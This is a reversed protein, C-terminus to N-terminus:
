VDNEKNENENENQDKKTEEEEKEEKQKPILKEIKQEIRYLKTEVEDTNFNIEMHLPTEEAEQLKIQFWEVYENIENMLKEKDEDSIEANEQLKQMDNEIRRKINEEIMPIRERFNKRKLAPEGISRLADLRSNYENLPQREFENESFWDRINSLLSRYEDIHEPSFFDTYDREIATELQFIYSELENKAEDIKIENIDIERMRKEQKIYEDIEEAPLGFYPKYTFKVSKEIQKDKANENDSGKADNNDNNKDPEAPKPVRVTAGIVDVIGDPTLRVKLRVTQLEESKTQIEVHGLEYEATYIVVDISSIVKIPVIKTSPIPQFAQFLEKDNTENTTPDEWKIMVSCHAMEQVNLSVRFQPSLIAAQFGAGLAFCEDPNLSQTPQKKFIENIKTKVLPVRSAGGHVEIISLDDMSLNANKIAQEIPMPIRSLLDKIQDEFETRKVHFHVDIDNLQVEFPIVPNISLSKKLKEVSSVFRLMARPNSAPDIKYKDITKQRLYGVLPATFYSGGLQPDCAFGKVEVSGQFLKVIAVNMSCDGFDIFAANLADKEEAPLKTRHTMAYTIAEATTSNLLNLIHFGAIKASDMIIRREMEGWWPSVVIVCQDTFVKNKQAIIFLGRFLFALVQEVGFITPNNLYNVKVGVFGNTLPALEYSIQSQIEERKPSDWRLGVLQKIQNVTSNINQMLQQSAFVGSYRRNESYAVMTPTLRQSVENLVVDVSGHQPIAVLCNENGFDIGIVSMKTLYKLHDAM